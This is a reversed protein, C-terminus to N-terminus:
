AGLYEAEFQIADLEKRLNSKEEDSLRKTPYVCYGCDFGIMSLIEKVTPVVGFKICIDIFRNVQYQAKQAEGIEQNHFSDYIKRFLRPLLNYTAGIGGDAGMSLGCILQEDPGNLVNINGGNLEKIKRMTYYDYSTWKLGIMNSVSMLNEVSGVTVPVGALPSAYMLIPLGSADSLAQYYQTIEPQGYHFFFPPVSSIADVKVKGAHEALSRATTLDIAGVHVIVKANTNATEERCIEAMRMRQRPSVVPGEGTGGCVYFGDVKEQLHWQILRRTTVENITENENLPTVLAPMIGTFLVNNSNSM